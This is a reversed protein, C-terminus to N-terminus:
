PQSSATLSIIKSKMLPTGARLLAALLEGLPQRFISVQGLFFLLGNHFLDLVEKCLPQVLHVNSQALHKVTLFQLSPVMSGLGLHLTHGSLQLLRGAAFHICGAQHHLQFPQKVVNAVVIIHGKRRDHVLCFFNGM